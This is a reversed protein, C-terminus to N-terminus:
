DRVDEEVERWQPEAGEKVEAELKNAEEMTEEASSIKTEEENIVELALGLSQLEKVLV